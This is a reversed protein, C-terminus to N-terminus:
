SINRGCYPAYYLRQNTIRIYCPCEIYGSTNSFLLNGKKLLDIVDKYKTSNESIIAYNM